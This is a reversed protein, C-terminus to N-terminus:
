IMILVQKSPPSRLTPVTSWRSYSTCRLSSAWSAKCTGARRKCPICRCVTGRCFCAWHSSWSGSRCFALKKGFYWERRWVWPYSEPEICASSRSVRPQSQSSSNLWYGCSFLLFGRVSSGHAHFNSPFSSRKQSVFPRYDDFYWLLPPIQLPFIWPPLSFPSFYNQILHM